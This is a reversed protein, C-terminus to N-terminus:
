RVIGLFHPHCSLILKGGNLYVLFFASKVFKLVAIFHKAQIVWSEALPATAKKYNKLIEPNDLNADSVLVSCNM